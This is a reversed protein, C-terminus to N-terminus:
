PRGHPRGVAYSRAARPLRRVSTGSSLWRFSSSTTRCSIPEGDRDLRAVWTDTDIEVYNVFDHTTMGAVYVGGDLASVTAAIRDEGEPVELVSQWALATSTTAPSSCTPKSRATRPSLPRSSDWAALDPTYPDDACAVLALSSAIFTSTSFRRQARRSASWRGRSTRSRPPTPSIRRDGVQDSPWTWCAGLCRDFDVRDPGTATM